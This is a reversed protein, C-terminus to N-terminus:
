TLYYSEIMNLVEVINRFRENIYNFQMDTSLSEVMREFYKPIYDLPNSNFKKLCDRAFNNATLFDDYNYDWVSPLKSMQAQDIGHKLCDNLKIHRKRSAYYHLIDHLEKNPM